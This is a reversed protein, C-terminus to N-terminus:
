SNPAVLGAANSGGVLLVGGNHPLLYARHDARPARARRRVRLQRHGSRSDRDDGADDHRRVGGAIVIQDDVTTTASAGTRPGTLAVTAVTGGIPDIIDATAQAVGGISGGVIVIRGSRTSAVAAGERVSGLTGRPSRARRPISSDGGHRRRRRNGHPRREIPGGRRPRARQEVLRGSVVRQGAHRLDGREGRRGRCEGTETAVATTGGVVLVRGNDLVVAAHGSRPLSM